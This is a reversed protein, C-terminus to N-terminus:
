TASEPFNRSAYAGCSEGTLLMKQRNYM